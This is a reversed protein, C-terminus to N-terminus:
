SSPSKEVNEFSAGVSSLAAQLNKFVQEAQAAMDNAGVLDGERDMALQGAICVTRGPGTEVVHTYGRPAHMDPPNTFRASNTM